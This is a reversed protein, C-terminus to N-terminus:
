CQGHGFLIRLVTLTGSPPLRRGFNLSDMLLFRSFIVFVPIDMTSLGVDGTVLYCVVVHVAPTLGRSLGLSLQRAICALLSDVSRLQCDFVFGDM